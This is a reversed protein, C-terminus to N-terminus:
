LSNSTSIGSKERIKKIRAQIKSKKEVFVRLLTKEKQNSLILM